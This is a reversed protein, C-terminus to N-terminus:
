QQTKASTRGQVTVAATKQRAIKASFTFTSWKQFEKNSGARGSRKRTRAGKNKQNGQKRCRGRMKDYNKHITLAAPVPSFFFPFRMQSVTAAKSAHWQRAASAAVQYGGCPENSSVQQSDLTFDLLLILPDLCAKRSVLLTIQSEWHLVAGTGWHQLTEGTGKWHEGSPVPAIRRPCIKQSNHIIIEKLQTFQTKSTGRKFLRQKSLSSRLTGLDWLVSM